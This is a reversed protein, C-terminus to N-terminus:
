SGQSKQGLNKPSMMIETQIDFYKTITMFDTTRNISAICLYIDILTTAPVQWLLLRALFKSLYKIKSKRNLIAVAIIHALVDLKKNVNEPHTVESLDHEDILRSIEIITGARLSSITLRNLRFLRYLFPADKITFRIGRGLLLRAAALRTNNEAM